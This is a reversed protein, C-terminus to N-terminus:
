VRELRLKVKRYDFESCVVVVVVVLLNCCYNMGAFPSSYDGRDAGAAAAAM